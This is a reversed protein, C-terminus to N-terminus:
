RLTRRCRGPWRPQEGGVSVADEAGAAVLPWVLVALLHEPEVDMGLFGNGLANVLDVGGGATEIREDVVGTDHM